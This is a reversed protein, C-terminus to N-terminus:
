KLGGTSAPPAAGGGAAQPLSFYFSAGRDPASEAWVRGGHRAVVRQVIALGVGTGSFEKETHLRQFVGFLKDYYAMNFGVGNDKVCYVNEAGDARGSVEIRQVRDKGAYKLANSLLNALVQRLLASDGWGTPLAALDFEAEGEPQVARLERYVERALATMDIASFALPKKGLRAFDLLADILQGMRRSNDRIVDLRRAGEGGLPGAFDEVLMQSFGDIARLPARLDHSVSYSFAELEKNAADLQATREAVRRELEVKMRRDDEARRRGAAIRLALLIAAAGLALILVYATLLRQLQEDRAELASSFRTPQQVVVGWGYGPVAAFAVISDEGEVPDFAIEVGHRGQRLKEAAPAKSLDTFEQRSPYKSHFATRGKSDVIYLFGNAGVDVAEIWELLRAIEIQLVLIGAVSGAADRVPVAVAFVRLRPEATRIYTPSVYPRWGASVGQYWERFAFSTGRVGPLAPVDAQLTGGADTLFLREIHPLDRPVASMIEIAEAWKGAAVLERFRVRTALSVAVDVVRGFKEALTAASLRAVAERRLLAVATLESDIERYSRVATAVLAASALLLVIWRASASALLAKALRLMATKDTM